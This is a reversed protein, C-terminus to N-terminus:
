TDNGYLVQYEATGDPMLYRGGPVGLAIFLEPTPVISEGEKIANPQVDAYLSIDGQSLSQVARGSPLAM